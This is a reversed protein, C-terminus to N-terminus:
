FTLVRDAWLTWDALEELTSRRAGEVLSEEGLGRADLCTGCCGVEGANRLPDAHQSVIM